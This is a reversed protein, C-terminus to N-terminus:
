DEKVIPALICPPPLYAERGSESKVTNNEYFKDIEERTETKALLVLPAPAPQESAWSRQEDKWRSITDRAFQKNKENADVSSVEAGTQFYRATTNFLDNLFSREEESLPTLETQPPTQLQFDPKGSIALQESFFTEILTLLRSWRGQEKQSLNQKM